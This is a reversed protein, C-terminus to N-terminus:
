KNLIFYSEEEAVHEHWSWNPVVFFDGKEWNFRTGDIITYRLM